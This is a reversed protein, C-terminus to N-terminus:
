VCLTNHVRYAFLSCIVTINQVVFEILLKLNLSLSTCNIHNHRISEAFENM